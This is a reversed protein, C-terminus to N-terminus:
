KVETVLEQDVQSSKTEKETKKSKSSQKKPELTNLESDQSIQNKM